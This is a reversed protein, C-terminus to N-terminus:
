ALIFLNKKLTIQIVNNKLDAKNLCKPKLKTIFQMQKPIRIQLEAKGDKTLIQATHKYTALGYREFSTDPGWNLCACSPLPQLETDFTEKVIISRDGHQLLDTETVDIDDLDCTQGMMSELLGEGINGSKHRVSHDREELGSDMESVFNILNRLNDILSYDSMTMYKEELFKVLDM